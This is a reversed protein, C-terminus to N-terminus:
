TFWHIMLNSRNLGDILNHNCLVTNRSTDPNICFYYHDNSLATGGSGQVDGVELKVGDITDKVMMYQGYESKLTAKYSKYTMMNDEWCRESLLPLNLFLRLALFVAQWWKYVLRLLELKGWPCFSHRVQASLFDALVDGQAASQLYYHKVPHAM